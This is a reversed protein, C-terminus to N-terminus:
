PSNPTLLVARDEHTHKTRLTGVIQGMENIGKAEILQDEIDVLKNLDYSTGNEWLFANNSRNAIVYGVVQGLSNIDAPRPWKGGTGRSTIAEMGGDANWYFAEYDNGGYGGQSVGVVEGLDNLATAYSNTHNSSYLGLSQVQLVDDANFWAVAAVDMMGPVRVEGAMMDFSNVDFPFFSGLDTPGSITGDAELYWVAGSVSEDSDEAWGVITGGSNIALAAGVPGGFTPLFTLGIGPIHVFAKGGTEDHLTGVLIGDVNVDEARMNNATGTTDDFALREGVFNVTWVGAGRGAGGHNAAVYAIDNEDQESIADAYSQVLDSALDTVSYLAAGDSGGGGSSGGGKGEPPGGWTIVTLGALTVVTGITLLYRRITRTM